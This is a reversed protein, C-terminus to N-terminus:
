EHSEFYFDCITRQAPTGDAVFELAQTCRIANANLYTRGMGSDSQAGADALLQFVAKAKRGSLELSAGQGDAASIDTMQCSYNHSINSYSCEVQDLGIHIQSMFQESQAGVKLLTKFIKYDSSAAFVNGSSAFTLAIMLAASRALNFTKM